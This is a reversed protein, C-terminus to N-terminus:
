AAPVRLRRDHRGAADLQGPLIRVGVGHEPHRHVDHRPLGRDRLFRATRRRDHLRYRRAREPQIRDGHRHHRSRAHRGVRTRDRDRHVDQDSRHRGVGQRQQHGPVPRRRARLRGASAVAPLEAHVGDRRDRFPRSGVTCARRCAARGQGSGARHLLAQLLGGPRVPDQPARDRPDVARRHRPRATHRRARQRQPGLHLLDALTAADHHTRCRRGDGPDDHGRDCGVRDRGGAQRPLRPRGALDPPARVNGPLTGHRAVDPHLGTLPPLLGPVHLPVLRHDHVARRRRHRHGFPHRRDDMQSRREVMRRHRDHPRYRIHRALDNEDIVEGLYDLIERATAIPAGTWPKFRYGFTYLDSDSRIGPYTHTLWTGGFDHQSELVVVRKDPCQQGLHYAAGIGSIGAGVVLVDTHEISTGTTTGITDTM